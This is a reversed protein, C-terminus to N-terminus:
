CPYCGRANSARFRRGHFVGGFLHETLTQQEPTLLSKHPVYLTAESGEEIKVSEVYITGSTYGDLRLSLYWKTNSNGEKKRVKGILKWQATGDPNCTVLMSTQQPQIGDWGTVDQSGQFILVAETTGRVLNNGRVIISVTYCKESELVNLHQTGITTIFNLERDINRITRVLNSEIVLNENIIM